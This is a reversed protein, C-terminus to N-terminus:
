SVKREESEAQPGAECAATQGPRRPGKASPRPNRRERTQAARRWEEYGKQRSEDSTQTKCALAIWQGPLLLVTSDAQNCKLPPLPPM